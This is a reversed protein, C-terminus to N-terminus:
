LTRVPRGLMRAKADLYVTGAQKLVSTTLTPGGKCERCFETPPRFWEFSRKRHLYPEGMVHFTITDTLENDAIQDLVNRAFETSM